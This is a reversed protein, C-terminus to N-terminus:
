RRGGLYSNFAELTEPESFFYEPVFLRGRHPPMAVENLWCFRTYALFTKSVSLDASFSAGKRDWLRWLFRGAASNDAEPLNKWCNLVNEYRSISTSKENRERKAVTVPSVGLFQELRSGRNPHRPDIYWRPDLVTGLLRCAALEDLDAVFTLYKWVSHSQAVLLFDALDLSDAIASAIVYCIRDDDTFDHWGGLSAPVTAGRLKYLIQEPDKMEEKTCLVPSCVQLGAIEGKLRKDFLDVLLRANERSGIV